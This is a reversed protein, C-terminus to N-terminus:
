GSDIGVTAFGSIATIWDEQSDLLIEIRLDAGVRRFPFALRCVMRHLLHGPIGNRLPAVRPALLFAESRAMGRVDCLFLNM